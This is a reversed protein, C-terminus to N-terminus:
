YKLVWINEGYTSVLDARKEEAEAMSGSLAIGVRHFKFDGTPKLLYASEGAAVIEEGKDEALDADYFSGIVVYWRGEPASITFLEATPEPEPEPIPEPEPEPEPKPQPQETKIPEVEKDKKFVFFYLIAAIIVILLIIVLATIGSNNTKEEEEPKKAVPQVPAKKEENKPHAKEDGTSFM